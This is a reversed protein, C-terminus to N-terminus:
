SRIYFYNIIVFGNIINEYNSFVFIVRSNNFLETACFLPKFRPKYVREREKREEEKFFFYDKLLISRLCQVHLKLYKYMVIKTLIM